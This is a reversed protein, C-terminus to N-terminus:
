KAAMLARLEALRASEEPPVNVGASGSYGEVISEELLAYARETSPAKPDTRIATELYVDAQSVWFGSNTGVETIGLLYWAEAADRPSKPGAELFRHLLSSAVVYHVLGARGTPAPTITRAEEVLKRATALDPKRERLPRLERLSRNWQEADSRLRRWLDPRQSLAELVPLPRDYDNKVRISVVLEEALPAVLGTAPVAPDALLQELVSLGEDFQRTAILLRAREPRPLAALTTADVFSTALPSDGPSQLKTHCAVCNETAYQVLFAASRFDGESHRQLARRADEALSRGLYRRGADTAAAHSALQDANRALAELANRVAARNEPAGFAGENTSLPLLIKMSAFVEAMRARTESSAADGSARAAPSAALGIAVLV